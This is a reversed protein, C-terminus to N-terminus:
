RERLFTIPNSEHSFFLADINSLSFPRFQKIQFRIGSQRSYLIDDKWDYKEWGQMYFCEKEITSALLEISKNVPAVLPEINNGIIISDFDQKTQYLAEGKAAFQGIVAYEEDYKNKMYYGMSYSNPGIKYNNKELHGLHASIFVRGKCGLQNIISIANKAMTQDREEFRYFPSNVNSITSYIYEFWFIDKESRKTTDNSCINASPSSTITKQIFRNEKKKLLDHFEENLYGLTNAFGIFSPKSDFGAVEILTSRNRNANRIENFLELYDPSALYGFIAQNMKLSDSQNTVYRNIQYGDEPSTELLLLNIDNRKIAHRIISNFNKNFISSGHITEGIGIIKWEKKLGLKDSICKQFQKYMTRSISMVSDGCTQEIPISDVLIDMKEIVYTGPSSNELEIIISQTDPDISQSFSYDKMIMDTRMFTNEGMKYPSRILDCNDITYSSCSNRKTSSRQRITLLTKNPRKQPTWDVRNEIGGQFFLGRLKVTINLCNVPIVFERSIWFSACESPKYGRKYGYKVAYNNRSGWVPISDNYTYCCGAGADTGGVMFEWKEYKTNTFLTFFSPHYDANLKTNAVSISVKEADYSSDNNVGISHNPTCAAFILILSAFFTQKM